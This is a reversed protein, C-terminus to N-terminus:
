KNLLAKIEELRSAAESAPVPLTEMDTVYAGPIIAEKIERASPTKKLAKYEDFTWRTFVSNASIGQRNLWWGNGLDVPRSAASIDSPAPFYVLRGNGDFTVAVKDAYDGSMRFASAQPRLAVTGTEQVPVSAVPITVTTNHSSCGLLLAVPAILFFHKM